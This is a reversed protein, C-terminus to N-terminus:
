LLPEILLPRIEMPLSRAREYISVAEYGRKGAERKRLKKGNEARVMGARRPHQQRHDECCGSAEVFNWGALDIQHTQIVM